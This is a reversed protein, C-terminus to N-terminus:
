CTMSNLQIKRTSKLVTPRIHFENLVNNIIVHALIAKQEATAASKQQQQAKKNTQNKATTIHGRPSPMLTFKPNWALVFYSSNAPQM